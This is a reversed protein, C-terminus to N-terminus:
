DETFQILQAPQAGLVRHTTPSHSEEGSQSTVLVTISHESLGMFM